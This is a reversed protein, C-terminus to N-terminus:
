AAEVTYDYTKKIYELVKYRYYLLFLIQEAAQSKHSFKLQTFKLFVLQKTAQSVNNCNFIM